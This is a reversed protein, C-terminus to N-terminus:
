CLLTCHMVKNSYLVYIGHIFAFVAESVTLVYIYGYTDMVLFGSATNVCQTYM